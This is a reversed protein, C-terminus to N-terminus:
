QGRINALNFGTPVKKIVKSHLDHLKNEGARRMLKPFKILTAAKADRKNKEILQELLM